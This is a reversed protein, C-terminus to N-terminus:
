KAIQNITSHASQHESWRGLHLAGGSPNASRASPFPLVSTNGDPPVWVPRPRLLAMIYSCGGYFSFVGRFPTAVTRRTLLRGLDGGTVSRALGMISRQTGCPVARRLSATLILELIKRQSNQEQAGFNGILIVAGKRKDTMGCDSGEQKGDVGACRSQQVQCM